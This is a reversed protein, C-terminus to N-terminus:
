ELWYMKYTLLALFITIVSGSSAVPCCHKLFEILLLQTWTYIIYCFYESSFCQVHWYSLWLIVSWRKYTLLIAMITAWSDNHSHYQILVKRCKLLTVSSTQLVLNKRNIIICTSSSNIFNMLWSHQLIFTSHYSWLRSWTLLSIYNQIHYCQKCTLLTNFCKM